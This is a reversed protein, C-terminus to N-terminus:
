VLDIKEYEKILNNWANYLGTLENKIDPFSSLDRWDREMKAYVRFQIKNKKDDKAMDFYISDTIHSASDVFSIIKAELTNPIVDSCRHSRVCHLVENMKKRPYKEHELFKKALEEGRIAHDIKSPIPYHGIDHLWVSLLVVEENAQPYKKLMFKAWREVEPVHALLGYPDSGFDNVTRLFEAKAKKIISKM